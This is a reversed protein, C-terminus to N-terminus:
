RDCEFEHQSIDMFVISKDIAKRMKDGDKFCFPAYDFYGLTMNKKNLSYWTAGPVVDFAECPRNDSVVFIYQGKYEFRCWILSCPQEKRIRHVADSLM